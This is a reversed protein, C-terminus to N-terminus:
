ATSARTIISRFRIHSCSSANQHLIPSHGAECDTCNGQVTHLCHKIIRLAVVIERNQLVTKYPHTGARFALTCNNEICPIDWPYTTRYVAQRSAHGCGSTRSNQVFNRYTLRWHTCFRSIFGFSTYTGKDREKVKTKYQSIELGRQGDGALCAKVPLKSASMPTSSAYM